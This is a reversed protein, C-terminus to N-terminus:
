LIAKYLNFSATYNQVSGKNVWKIKHVGLYDNHTCVIGIIANWQASKKTLYYLGARKKAHVKVRFDWDLLLIQADSNVTYCFTLHVQRSTTKLM